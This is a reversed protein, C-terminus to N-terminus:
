SWVQFKRYKNRRYGIHKRMPSLYTVKLQFIQWTSRVINQCFPMSIINLSQITFALKKKPFYFNATYLRKYFPINHLISFPHKEFFESLKIIIISPNFGIEIWILMLRNWISRFPRLGIRFLCKFISSDTKFRNLATWTM